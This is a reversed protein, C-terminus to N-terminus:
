AVTLELGEAIKETAAYEIHLVRRATREYSSSAQIVIERAIGIMEKRAAIQAVWPGKMLQRVGAPSRPLDSLQEILDRVALRDVVMGDGDRDVQKGLENRKVGQRGWKKRMWENKRM